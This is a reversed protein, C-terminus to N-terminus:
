WHGFKEWQHSEKKQTINDCQASNFPACIRTNNTNITNTLDIFTFAKSRSTKLPWFNKKRM